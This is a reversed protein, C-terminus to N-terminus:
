RCEVGQRSEPFVSSFTWSDQSGIRGNRPHIDELLALEISRQREHDTGPIEGPPQTPRRSAPAACGPDCTPVVRVPDGLGKGPQRLRAPGALRHCEGEIQIVFRNSVSRLFVLLLTGLGEVM